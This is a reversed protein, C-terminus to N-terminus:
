VGSHGDKPKGVSNVYAHSRMYPTFIADNMLEKESSQDDVVYSKMEIDQTVAIRMKSPHGDDKASEYHDDTNKVTVRTGMRSRSKSHGSHEVYAGGNSSSMHGPKKLIVNSLFSKLSPVSGMMIAVNIELQSWMAIDVGTIPQEEAPRSMSDYLSKLRVISVITTFLGSAFISVLIIRQKKEIQLTLIFPAPICLLILDNFINFGAISYIVNSRNACSGPITDDWAKAIPFCYFLSCCFSMLGCLTIWALVGKMIRRGMPTTFLRYSQLTMSLKYLTQTLNYLTVTCYISILFHVIKTPDATEGLGYKIQFFVTIFFCISTVMAGCMLLDDSGLRKLVIARTYLRLLVVIMALTTFVFSVVVLDHNRDIIPLDGIYWM